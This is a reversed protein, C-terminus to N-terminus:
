RIVRYRSANSADIKIMVQYVKNKEEQTAKKFIEIIENSKSMTFVAVLINSTYARDAEYVKELARVMETRAATPNQHFMDLGSRHYIYFAERFPAMRPDLLNDVVWFRNRNGDISQWGPYAGVINPPVQNLISQAERFYAEGGKKEFSDGDLGIIINAYFSLISVLNDSYVNKTYQLPQFEEYDFKVDKDLHTLLSTEYSSGYTPRSAGIALEAEFQTASIERSITMTVNVNIREEPLYDDDTWKQNNMFEAISNKLTKFVNPDVSELKPTNITVQVNLEQAWSQIGSCILLFIFVVKKM